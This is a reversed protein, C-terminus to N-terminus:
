ARLGAETMLPMIQRGLRDLGDDNDPFSIALGELGAEHLEVMSQVIQQPTGVLPYAFFGRIQAELLRQMEISSWDLTESHAMIMSLVNQGAEYDGKEKYVEDYYARAEDESDRCCINGHAFVPLERGHQERATSKIEAVVAATRSPDELAAFILDSHKGAFAQGAPSIGASMVLPYPQQLPKPEAHAGPVDFFRGHFDFPADEAWIRKAVTVWEDAVEYREDHLRQEVGFMAIEHPQWGAVVNLGFRGNSIHDITVAQRAAFVPHVTPVHFTALVQIRETLAAIGAAWAFPEFGRAGLNHAGGYGLWRALPILAEVGIRDAHQALRVSEEWTAKPVGEYTSMVLGANFNIGFIALKFPNPSGLLPAASKDIRADM